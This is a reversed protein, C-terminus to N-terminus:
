PQVARDARKHKFPCMSVSSRRCTIRSRSSLSPLTTAASSLADSATDGSVTRRSRRSSASAPEQPADVAARQRRRDARARVRHPALLGPPSPRSRARSSGGGGRRGPSGARRPCSWARPRGAGAGRGRRSAHDRVARRDRDREGVVRGDVDGHEAPHELLVRVREDASRRDLRQAGHARVHEDEADAAQVGLDPDGHHLELLRVHLARHDRVGGLDHRDGRGVLEARRPRVDDPRQLLQRVEHGLAGRRLVLEGRVARDPM